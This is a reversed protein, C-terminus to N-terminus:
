LSMIFYAKMCLHPWFYHWVRTYYNCCGNFCGEVICIYLLGLIECHSHLGM